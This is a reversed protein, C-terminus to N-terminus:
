DCLVGFIDLLSQKSQPPLSSYKRVQITKLTLNGSRSLFGALDEELHEFVLFLVLQREREM